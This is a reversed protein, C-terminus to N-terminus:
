GAFRDTSVNIKEIDGCDVVRQDFNLGWDNVMGDDSSRHIIPLRNGYVGNGFNKQWFLHKATVGSIM